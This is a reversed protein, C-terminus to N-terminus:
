HIEEMEALQKINEKKEMQEQERRAHKREVKRGHQLATLDSINL